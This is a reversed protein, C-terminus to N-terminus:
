KRVVEVAKTNDDMAVDILLHNPDIGARGPKAPVAVTITPKGSHVRHMQLYLPTGNEGFVGVQVQDDMPVETEVGQEDVVVKRAQVELTVQWTAEATQRATARTTELEWFTNRELLDRLLYHLSEPTVAQLERYLDLSTAYPPQESRHRDFLRRWALDVTDQGAYERLAYMAFPGKRYALFWDTARLQPVDARSRPALYAERMFGLFRQLHEAGLEREIVGMAAYWAFSESLLARGEVRAPPVQFQHAVEHATVAFPMDVERRNNAVDFLSFMEQYWVTASAAHLGGGAGPYEVMRLVKHPYAGFRETYQELSAEMSRILRPVNRDHEPHHVVEIDVDAARSRRVAYDASFIAYGLGIPAATAYHFYNRGNDTWARRLEGTAIATQGAATGVTVQVDFRELGTMDSRAAVDDLSAVEAREPLGQQRRQEPDTLEWRSQYGVLPMWRHMQIFSGNGVVDTSIGRAPFGRPDYRVQWTVQLADGPQLPQELTYVRHGLDDDLLTARAPRDFQLERTETESPMALHVTDIGRDTRNVLRYVGRVDAERREPYLEVHLKTATMEPQPASAYHQYRREYEARREVLEASTRYTNVVNTNYFIFGGVALVLICTAAFAGATAGAFRRRAARAREGLRLDVGRVWFLRAVIALLLTWAAWYLEFWLVPWLFPGFGSMPSYDWGPTAGYIMLPHEIGFQAALTPVAIALLLVVVHGVHKHNVLVHVSLALLAFVLPSILQLGLMVRLYLAPEFDYWGLQVQIIVGAVILLAHLAAVVIWLGLLKGAFRVWDPVPAADALAQMHADRERWVLEGAFLVIFVLVANLPGRFTEIVRDTTPVVPTGNAMTLLLDRNTAALSLVIPFVLWSWGTVMERLSDRTITMTQRLRTASKSEPRRRRGESPATLRIPEIRAAGATDLGGRAARRQWWGSRAHTGRRVRAHTVVLALVALVLWLLRNWLLAAEGWVLRANLDIPSWSRRMVSFPTVGTPDLITALDWLGLTQGLYGRSFLTGAFVMAAGVYSGITHRVLMALSFLLATAVFANPLLVLCYSQLYAAARVPGVVEPRLDPHVFATVVFALPVVLLLLAAVFFAGLFRGGLYAARRVPASLILPKLRTDIDRTAADGAIAAIFLVAVLSIFASDAAVLIPAAFLMEGSLANGIAGRIQGMSPLLFVAFLFWVSRRGLQYVMEFRVIELWHATTVSM